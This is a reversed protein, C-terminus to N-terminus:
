TPFVVNRNNASMACVIQYKEEEKSMDNDSHSVLHRLKHM